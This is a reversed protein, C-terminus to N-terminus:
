AWSPRAACSAVSPAPWASVCCASSRSTADPVLRQSFDAHQRPRGRHLALSCLILNGLVGISALAIDTLPQVITGGLNGAAALIAQRRRSAIRPSSTPFGQWPALLGPLNDTVTAPERRVVHHLEGPGAFHLSRWLFLGLLLALYTIVVVILRPLRPAWRHAADPLPALIFALLWALFFILIIDSFYTLVGAIQDILILAVTLTGLVLLASLWRRDRGSMQSMM